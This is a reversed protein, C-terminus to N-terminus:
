ILDCGLTKADELIRVSARKMITHPLLVEDEPREGSLMGYLLKAAMYGKAVVNQDVTTLQPDTYRTIQLGDFGVVSYDQPVSYGLAKIAAMAGCAVKDSMCLFATAEDREHEAFYRMVGHYAQEELFSTYIIQDESVPLGNQEMAQKFGEFRKQSVAASRRGYLLVIKRHGCDILHQTLDKFAKVDDLGVNVLNPGKIDLDITVCPTQSRPLLEYYPDNTRVGLLIAGSAGYEHCLQDFSKEEQVHSTIVRVPLDKGHELTYTYAGQMLMSAFENFMREELFGSIIMVGCPHRKSSLSRANLNPSYGLEKAAALVRNRTQQNVDAYNNLARSVTSVSLGLATAVDQITAIGIGGERRAYDEFVNETSKNYM